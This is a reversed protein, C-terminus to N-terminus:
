YFNEDPRDIDTCKSTTDYMLIVFREVVDEQMERPAHSLSLSHTLQPLVNWTTWATKKGLGVFSSVTDCGTLAHFMPLAQSKQTGLENSMKHAALHQFHTGTGFTLWIEYDPGLIAALSM